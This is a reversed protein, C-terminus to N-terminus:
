AIMNLVTGTMEDGTRIMAANASYAHDVQMLGVMERAVDVGAADARSVSAVQVGNGGPGDALGVSQPRYGETSMNAINHATSDLSVGLAGLAQVSSSYSDSM